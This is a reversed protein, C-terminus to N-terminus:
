EYRLADVPRLKSATRAPLAGSMAGVVFSFFLAGLVLQPTIAIKLIEIGSAVAIAEVGKSIAIGFIVGIIGGVLGLTGSEILFLIM